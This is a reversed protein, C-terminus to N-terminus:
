PQTGKETTIETEDSRDPSVFVKRSTETAPSVPSSKATPLSSQQDLLAAFRQRARHLRIGVANESIDLIGAIERHPLEEWAALELVERDAPKLRQLAEMIEDSGDVAVAAPDDPMAPPTTHRLRDVLRAGTRRKRWSNRLHNRAIGFLWPRADAGGPASDLKKWAVAFTESLAEEASWASDSRRLCYRWIDDYNADYLERFRAVRLRHVPDPSEATASHEVCTNM